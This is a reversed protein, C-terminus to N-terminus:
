IICYTAVRRMVQGLSRHVLSRAQWGRWGETIKEETANASLCWPGSTRKQRLGRRQLIAPAFTPSQTALFCLM